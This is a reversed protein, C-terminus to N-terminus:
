RRPGWVTVTVGAPTHVRVTDTTAQIPFGGGFAVPIGDGPGPIGGYPDVRVVGDDAADDPRALVWVTQVPDAFTFVLLGPGSKDALVEGSPYDDAVAVLAARLQEDTLGDPEPIALGTDVTLVGQLTAVVDALAAVAAILSAETAVTDLGADTVPVPTARLQTDTLGGTSGGGVVGDVVTVPWPDPGAAGQDATISGGPGRPTATV